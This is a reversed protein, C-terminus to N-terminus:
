RIQAMTRRIESMTDDVARGSPLDTVFTEMFPVSETRAGNSDVCRGLQLM